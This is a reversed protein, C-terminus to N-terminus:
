PRFMGESKTRTGGSRPKIWVCGYGRSAGHAVSRDGSRPEGLLSKLWVSTGLMLACIGSVFATNGLSSAAIGSGIMANVSM